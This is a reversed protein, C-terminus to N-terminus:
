PSIERPLPQAPVGKSRALGFSREPRRWPLRERPRLLEFCGRSTCHLISHDVHRTVSSVGGTVRQRTERTFTALFSLVLSVSYHWTFLHHFLTHM